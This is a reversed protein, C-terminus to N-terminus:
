FSSGMSGSLTYKVSKRVCANPSPSGVFSFFSTRRAPM